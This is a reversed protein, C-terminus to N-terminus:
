PTGLPQMAVLDGLSAAYSGGAVNGEVRLAAPASAQESHGDHGLLTLTCRDGSTQISIEQVAHVDITLTGRGRRLPLTAEGNFRPASLLTTIGDADTIRLRPPQSPLATPATLTRPLTGQQTLELFRAVAERQSPGGRLTLWDGLGMVAGWLVYADFEANGGRYIGARM